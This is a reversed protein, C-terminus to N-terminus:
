ARPSQKLGYLIKSLKFVFDPYAHNEFSPSQKVFVKDEIFGNLFGSKVDMQYLKFDKFCFYALLMRIAELRVIPVYIEEYDICEEQNYWQVVHRVKNIVIVGNEDNKNHFVWMTGIITHDNPKSVFTWVKNREFQNLDEQIAM